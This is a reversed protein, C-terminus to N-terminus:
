EAPCVLSEGRFSLSMTVWAWTRTTLFFTHGRPFPIHPDRQCSKTQSIFPPSSFWFCSCALAGGGWRMEIGWPSTLGLSIGTNVKRAHFISPFNILMCIRYVLLPDQMWTLLARQSYCFPHTQLSCPWCYTPIPQTFSPATLVLSSSLLLIHGKVSHLPLLYILHSCTSPGTSM